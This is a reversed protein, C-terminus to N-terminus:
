AFLIFPTYNWQVFFDCQTREATSQLLGVYRLFIKNRRVPLFLWTTVQKENTEPTVDASKQCEM